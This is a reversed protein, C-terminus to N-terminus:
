PMREGILTVVDGITALDSVAVNNLTIGFTEEIMVAIYLMGVSNIGLDERIRTGDTIRDAWGALSEDASIVIEALKSKIGDRDM